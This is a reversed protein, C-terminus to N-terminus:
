TRHCASAPTARGGDAGRRRKTRWGCSSMGARRQTFKLANDLLNLLLREFGARTATSWWRMATASAACVRHRAGARGARAARRAVGGAGGLDVPAFTLPIQGSEARALTLIQDILRKLRDIEELQSALAAESRGRRSGATRLALEIEGRLAALPTRLEHALAASFQRMEGVAHELRALTDNFASRWRTSSTTARRADAPAARLDHSTSRARRARGARSLPALAFGSLWWAPSRRRRATGGARRWLLLERYRRLAADMPALSM